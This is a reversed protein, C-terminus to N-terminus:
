NMRKKLLAFEHGIASLAEKTDELERLIKYHQEIPIVGSKKHGKTSKNALAELAGNRVKKRIEALEWPMLGNRHLIEKIPAGAGMCEQYINFQQEPTLRTRIKKMTLNEM